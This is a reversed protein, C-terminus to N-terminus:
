KTVVHSLEAQRCFEEQGMVEVNREANVIGNRFWLRQDLTLPDFFDPELTMNTTAPTASEYGLSFCLLWSGTYYGMRSYTVEDAQASAAVWVTAASLLISKM